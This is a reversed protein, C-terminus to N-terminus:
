RPIIPLTLRSPHQTDHYVTQLAPRMETEEGLKGGTNMNRDFRPFNSSSVELGIRHGAKFLNATSWLDITYEVLEGPTLLEAKHTGNRYRARIIGDTLNRVTGDPFIDVLKGTFDTDVATTEAWLTLKVPGTVEVEQELPPTAYILVDGRKEIEAQDYIGAYLRTPFCCTQGGHSPVPHYPDYLFHDPREEAPAQISLSGDGSSSNAGGDSHLFYDTFQTRALPWEHEYHWADEGM